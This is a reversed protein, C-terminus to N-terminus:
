AVDRAPESQSVCPVEVQASFFLDKLKCLLKQELPGITSQPNKKKLYQQILRGLNSLLKYYFIM